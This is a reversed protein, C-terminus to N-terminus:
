NFLFVKHGAHKLMEFMELTEHAYALFEKEIKAGFIFRQPFESQLKRLIDIELKSFEWHPYEEGTITQFEAKFSELREKSFTVEILKRESFLRCAYNLARFAALYKEGQRRTDVSISIKM